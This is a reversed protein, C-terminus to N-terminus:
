VEEFIITDDLFEPFQNLLKTLSTKATKIDKFHCRQDEGNKHWFNQYKYWGNVLYYVGDDSISKVRIM